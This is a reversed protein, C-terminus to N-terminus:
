DSAPQVLLGFQEVFTALAAEANDKTSYTTSFQYLSNGELDSIAYSGGAETEMVGLGDYDSIARYGGNALQVWM